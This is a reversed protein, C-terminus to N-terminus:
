GRPRPSRIRRTCWWTSSRSTTQPPSRPRDDDAAVLMASRGDRAQAEALLGPARRAPGRRAGRLEEAIRGALVQVACVAYAHSDAGHEAESLVDAAVLRPDADDLALVLTESPGADLDVGVRDQM